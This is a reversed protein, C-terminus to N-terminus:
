DREPGPELEAGGSGASGFKPATIKGTTTHPPNPHVDSVEDDPLARDFKGERTGLDRDREDEPRDRPIGSAENPPPPKKRDMHDEELNLPLFASAM